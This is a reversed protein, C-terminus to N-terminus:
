HSQQKLQNVSQILDTMITIAIQGQLEGRSSSIDHTHGDMPSSGHIFLTPDLINTIHGSSIIWVHTAYYDKFSGDSFGYITKTTSITSLLHIGDDAKSRAPIAESNAVPVM